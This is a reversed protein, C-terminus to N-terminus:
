TRTERRSITIAQVHLSLCSEAAFGARALDRDHRDRHGHHIRVSSPVALAIRHHPSCAHDTPRHRHRPATPLRRDARGPSRRRCSALPLTRGGTGGNQCRLKPDAKRVRGTSQECLWPSPPRPGRPLPPPPPPPSRWPGDGRPRPGRDYTSISAGSSSPEETTSKM